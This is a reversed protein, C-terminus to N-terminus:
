KGDKTTFYYTVAGGALGSVVPLWSHFLDEVVKAGDDRKFWILVMVCVYQLAIGGALIILLWKSLRSATEAHRQKLIDASAPPQFGTKLDPPSSPVELSLGTQADGAIPNNPTAL